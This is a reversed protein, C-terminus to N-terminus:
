AIAANQKIINAAFTKAAALTQRGSHAYHNGKLEIIIGVSRELKFTDAIADFDITGFGPAAHMDGISFFLREGDNNWKITAPVGTSDSFHIHGIHPTLIPLKELVYYGQLTAGQQAHSVDFCAVLHPHGIRELQAALAQLDLAYSTETGAMNHRNPNLNEYAITVGLNQARDALIYLDEAELALFQRANDAWHDPQVRGPHMVMIEAECEAALELSAMAARLHHDIHRRDMLNIAIPAHLAYAIKLRTLITKLKTLRSPMLRCAAVVDLSSADLECFNAGLDVQEAIRKGLADLDGQQGFNGVSFGVLHAM